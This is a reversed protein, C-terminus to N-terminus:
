RVFVHVNAALWRSRAAAFGASVRGSLDPSRTMGRDAFRGIWYEPPQENVHGSGGQGPTAATFVVVPATIALFAVLSDGLPPRLHEAVEFCYSADAPPLHLEDPQELDFGKMVIGQRRGVWRGVRSRELATVTHGRRALEAAFAGSGAGVDIFSHADPFVAAFTDAVVPASARAHEHYYLFVLPNYVLWELGLREGARSSAATVRM